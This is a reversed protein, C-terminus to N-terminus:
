KELFVRKVYTKVGLADIEQKDRLAEDRTAHSSLVAAIYGPTINDFGESDYFCATTLGQEWLKELSDQMNVDISSTQYSGAVVCWPRGPTPIDCPKDAKAQGLYRGTYSTEWNDRNPDYVYLTTTIKYDEPRIDSEEPPGYHPAPWERQFITIDTRGDGDKDEFTYEGHTGGAEHFVGHYDNEFVVTLGGPKQNVIYLANLESIGGGGFWSNPERTIDVIAERSGDRDPDEVSLNASKLVWTDHEFPLSHVMFFTGDHAEAILALKTVGNYYCPPCAATYLAIWIGEADAEYMDHLTVRPRMPLVAPCEKPNSVQKSALEEKDLGNQALSCRPMDETNKLFAQLANKKSEPAASAKGKPPGFIKGPPNPASVVPPSEEPLDEEEPKEVPAAESVIPSPGHAPVGQTGAKRPPRVCRIGTNEGRNGMPSGPCGFPPYRGWAGEGGCTFKVTVDSETPVMDDSMYEFVNGGFDCLGSVSNGRPDSCVPWTLSEKCYRFKVGLSLEPNRCNGRPPIIYSKLWDAEERNDYAERTWEDTTPLRGGLWDCMSAAQYWDVCNMPYNDKGDVGFNCGKSVRFAPPNGRWISKDVDEATCRGAAVCARYQATTIETKTFEVSAPLSFIWSVEASTQRPAPAKSKDGCGWIFVIAGLTLVASETLRMM